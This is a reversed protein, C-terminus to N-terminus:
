YKKQFYYPLTVYYLMSLDDANRMRVAIVSGNQADVWPDCITYRTPLTGYANDIFVNADCDMFKISELRQVDNSQNGSFYLWFRQGNATDTLYLYANSEEKEAEKDDKGEYPVGANKAMSVAEKWSVSGIGPVLKAILKNYVETRYSAYNVTQKSFSNTYDGVYKAAILDPYDAVRIKACVEGVAYAAIRGEPIWIELGEATALWSIDNSQFMSHVTKKWGDDAFADRYKPDAELVSIVVDELLDTDTVYDSVTLVKGTKTDFTFGYRIRNEHAGGMYTAVTRAFSFIATDSRIQGISDIYFWRSVDEGDDDAGSVDYFAEKCKISHATNVAAIRDMLASHDPEILYLMDVHYGVNRDNEDMTAYYWDAEGTVYKPGPEVAVQPPKPSPTVTPTVTASAPTPTATVEAGPTVTAATSPTIEPSDAPTVEPVDTPTMTPIDTPTVEPTDTPTVEPVETPTMEPVETPTMEPVETPTVEPVETPTMEPVDTPTEEPSPTNAEAATPTVSVKREAREEPEADGCGTFSLVTLIILAYMLLKKVMQM